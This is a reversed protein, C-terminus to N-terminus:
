IHRDELGSREIMSKIRAKLEEAQDIFHQRIEEPTKNQKILRSIDGAVKYLVDMQDLKRDVNEEMIDKLQSKNASAELDEEMEAHVDSFQDATVELRPGSDRAVMVAGEGILKASNLIRSEEYKPGNEM